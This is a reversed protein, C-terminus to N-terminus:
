GPPYNNRSEWVSRQRARFLFPLQRSFALMLALTHDALQIGYVRKGNTLTIGRNRFLALPYGEL